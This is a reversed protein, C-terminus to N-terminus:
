GEADLVSLAARLAALRPDVEPDDHAEAQLWDAFPFRLTAAIAPSVCSPDHLPSELV